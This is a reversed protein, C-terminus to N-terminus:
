YDDGPNKEGGAPPSYRAGLRPGAVWEVYAFLYGSRRFAELTAKIARVLQLGLKIASSQPGVVAAGRSRGRSQPGEVASGNALRNRAKRARPNKYPRAWAYM